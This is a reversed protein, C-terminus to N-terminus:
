LQHLLVNQLQHIKFTSSTFICKGSQRWRCERVNTFVYPIFYLFINSSHLLFHHVIFKCGLLIYPFQFQSRTRFIRCKCCLYVCAVLQSPVVYYKTSYLQWSWIYNLFKPITYFNWVNIPQIISQILENEEHLLFDININNPLLKKRKKLFFTLFFWGTNRDWFDIESDTYFQSM